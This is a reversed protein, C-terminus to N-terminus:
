TRVTRRAVVTLMMQTWSSRSSQMLRSPEDRNQAVPSIVHITVSRSLRRFHRNLEDMVPRVPLDVSDPGCNLFRRRGEAPIPLRVEATFDVEAFYAGITKM